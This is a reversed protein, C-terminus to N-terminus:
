KAMRLFMEAVAAASLHWVVHPWTIGKVRAGYIDTLGILGLAAIPVLLIPHQVIVKYERFLKTLAILVGIKDVTLLWQLPVTHSVISALGAFVLEPSKRYIGVVIFGVNSLTCWFEAVYPTVKYWNERQSKPETLKNFVGTNNEDSPSSWVGQNREFVPDTPHFIRNWLDPVASRTSSLAEGETSSNHNTIAVGSM